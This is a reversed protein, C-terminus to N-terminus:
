GTYGSGGKADRYVKSRRVVRGSHNRYTLLLTGPADVSGDPSKYTDPWTFGQPQNVSRDTHRMVVMDVPRTDLTGGHSDAIELTGQEATFSVQTSRDIGGESGGTSKGSWTITYRPGDRVLLTPREPLRGARLLHGAADTVRFDGNLGEIRVGAALVVTHNGNSSSSNSPEAPPLSGAWLTAGDRGTLRTQGDTHRLLMLDTPSKDSADSWFAHGASDKLTHIGGVVEETFSAQSIPGSWLIAKASDTLTLTGGDYTMKLGSPLAPFGSFQLPKLHFDSLSVNGEPTPESPFQPEPTPAAQTPGDQALASPPRLVGHPSGGFLLLGGLVPLAVAAVIAARTRRSVVTEPSLPRKLIMQIRRELSSRSPAIRVGVAGEFRTPLFREALRVLATAYTSPPLGSHIAQQDCAEESTQELRRCLGWLLPQM